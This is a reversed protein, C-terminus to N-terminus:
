PEFPLASGPQTTETVTNVNGELQGPATTPLMTETGLVPPRKATNEQIPQQSTQTPQELHQQAQEQTPQWVAPQNPQPYGYGIYYPMGQNPQQPQQPVNSDWPNLPQQPANPSQDKQSPPFLVQPPMNGQPPLPSQPLVQPPLPGQPQMPGQGVGGAVQPNLPLQSPLGMDPQQQQYVYPPMYPVQPQGYGVGNYANGNYPMFENSNSASLGYQQHYVPVAFSAGLLCTFIISTKMKM